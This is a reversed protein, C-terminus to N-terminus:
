RSFHPRPSPFRLSARRLCEAFRSKPDRIYDALSVPIPGDAYAADNPSHWRGKVYQMVMREGDPLEVVYWAEEELARM